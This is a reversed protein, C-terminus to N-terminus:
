GGFAIFKGAAMGDSDKWAESVRFQDNYNPHLYSDHVLTETYSKATEAFPGDAFYGVRFGNERDSMYAQFVEANSLNFVSHVDNEIHYANGGFTATQTFTSSNVTDPGHEAPCVGSNGHYIYSLGVSGMLKNLGDHARYPMTIGYDGDFVNNAITFWETVVDYVEDSGGDTFKIGGHVLFTNNSFIVDFKWLSGDKYPSIEFRRHITCGNVYAHKAKITDSASEGANVMCREMNVTVAHETTSATSYTCGVLHVSQAADVLGSVISELASLNQPYNTKMDITCGVAFINKSADPVIGSRVNELQVDVGNITIDGTCVINKLNGVTTTFSGCTRGRLDISSLGQQLALRVYVDPDRFSDVNATNAGVGSTNAQIRHSGATGFDFDSAATKEFFADSFDCNTFSYYHSASLPTGVFKCNDFSIYKGATFTLTPAIKGVVVANQVTKFSDINANAFYNVIDVFLNKSGCGFFAEASRFWSSHAEYKTDSFVFDAIYGSNSDVLARLINFKAKTFTAGRDFYVAVSASFTTNSTYTGSLFRRVQPMRIQYSGIYDGYGMFASINSEHGPVIGFVTCPLKEDEWLLLWRGTSHDNSAIVTGGNDGVTCNSDWIYYRMPAICNSDYGYVSVIGLSVDADKLADIGDIVTDNKGVPMAFGAQFIDITSYTGDGNPKEVLVDVVSADFYITQIRGSDDCLTPNTTPTYVGSEITFVDKPTDSDHDFVTIRGAVLPFGQDDFFQNQPLAIKM